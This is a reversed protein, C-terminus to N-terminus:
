GSTRRRLVVPPRPLILRLHPVGLLRVLRDPRGLEHERRLLHAPLDIGVLQPQVVQDPFARDRRLHGVGAQLAGRELDRRRPGVALRAHERRAALRDLEGAEEAGVDFPAVIRRALEAILLRDQRLARDAIPDIPRRGAVAPQRQHPQIRLPVLRGRRRSVGLGRQDLRELLVADAPRGGVRRRNGRNLLAAVHETLALRQHRAERRERDGRQQAIM